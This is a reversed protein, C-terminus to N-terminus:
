SGIVKDDPLMNILNNFHLFILTLYHYLCENTSFGGKAVIAATCVKPMRATLKELYASTIDNWDNKLINWKSRTCKKQVIRDLNEWLLDIPNLDRSQALWQM